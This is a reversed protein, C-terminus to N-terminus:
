LWWFHCPLAYLFFSHYLVFCYHWELECWSWWWLCENKINVKKLHEIFVWLYRRIDWSHKPTGCFGSTWDHCFCFMKIDLFIRFLRLFDKSHLGLHKNSINFSSCPTTLLFSSSIMPIRIMFINHFGHRM